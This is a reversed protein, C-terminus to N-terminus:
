VCKTSTSCNLWSAAIVIVVRQKSGHGYWNKTGLLVLSVQPEREALCVCTSDHMLHTYWYWNVLLNVQELVLYEVWGM